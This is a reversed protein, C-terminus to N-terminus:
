KELEKLVREITQEDANLIDSVLQSKGSGFHRETLVLICEKGACADETVERAHQYVQKQISWPMYKKYM